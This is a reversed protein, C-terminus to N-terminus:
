QGGLRGELAPIWKEVLVAWGPPASAAVASDRQIHAAAAKLAALADRVDVTQAGPQGVESAVEEVLITLSILATRVVPHTRDVGPHRLQALASLAEALASLEEGRARMTEAEKLLRIAEKTAEQGGPGRWYTM